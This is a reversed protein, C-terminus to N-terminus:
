QLRKVSSLRELIQDFEMHEIRERLWPTLETEQAYSFSELESIAGDVGDMDYSQCANRLRVLVDPDPVNRVPKQGNGSSIVKNVMEMLRENIDQFDMSNVKTKIWEVVESENEYNFSTLEEVANDVGDVDFNEAAMALKKLVTRDPAPRTPKEAAPSEPRRAEAPEPVDAPLRVSEPSAASEPWSRGQPLSTLREIIEGFSTQDVKEKLWAMFEPRDRYAFADLELFATEVGDMDYVECAAKLRELVEPDPLDKQPKQDSADQPKICSLIDAVLKEVRDIFDLNRGAVFEFDGAESKAELEKALDGLENAGVGYSSSKIGHVVITYDKLRDRSLNKLQALLEPMNAAYSKLVDTLVARDGGFRELAGLYNLGPIDAVKKASPPAELVPPKTKAASGAAKEAELHDKEQERDRVLQKLVVDMRHIEIPKSLYAQFGNELFMKDNGMIANATLAVIPVNRAYDTDIERRIIRVAEIGDMGPMMHDMFIANYRIKESRVLDVARQGSTVCDIQMEYPKLIGKAVDLNAQVDDVLLIKAYPMPIIYREHKAASRSKYYNFHELNEAVEQGIPESAAVKQRITVTFTSGHGYESEVKIDGDMMEVMKKTISLGLGTGEIKRNSKTDVQSYASFLKSLDDPKIGIGSDKVKITLWVCDGETVGTVLMDVHGEHTYKFANSLINSCIQKIRLEDGVLRSPMSKDIELGFEIPKEGIRILNVTVTDNILSSVDYEVEILEFRGSEIKSIDLIDNVIGLLTLGATHVKELNERREESSFQGYIMLESFGIIANLPTRMEHSMNALFNTKAVSASQAVESLEALHNYQHNIINFQRDVFGSALWAALVGLAMFVITMLIVAQDVYTLPSEALPASIGLTWGVNSDNISTYYALREMNDLIYRGSGRGGQIMVRAFERFSNVNIDDRMDQAPNYEGLVMFTRENALVKGEEDLIYVSGTDWVRYQALIHSFYLGPISVAALRGPGLPVCIHFVLEGDAASRTTSIVTQGEMAKNAYISNILDFSAPPEGYSALIKEKDMVTISLYINSSEVQEELIQPWQDVPKSDLHHVATWAEAKLLNIESSVLKEAIQTMVALDSLITDRIGRHIFFLSTGVTTGIIFVMIAVSVLFIKWRFSM